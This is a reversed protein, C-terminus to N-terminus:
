KTSYVKAQVEFFTQTFAARVGDKGDIQFINHLEINEAINQNM